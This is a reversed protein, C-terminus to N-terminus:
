STFVPDRAVDRGWGPEGVFAGDRAVVRGRCAVLAPWGTATMGEYPSHDTRMHLAAADVVTGGRILM